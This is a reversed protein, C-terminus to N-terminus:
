STSITFIQLSLPSSVITRLTRFVYKRNLMHQSVTRNTRRSNHHFVVVLTVQFLFPKIQSATESSLSNSSMVASCLVLQVSVDHDALLISRSLSSPVLRQFRLAQRWQSMKELLNEKVRGSYNQWRSIPYEFVPAQQSCEKELSWM